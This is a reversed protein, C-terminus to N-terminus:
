PTPVHVGIFAGWGGSTGLRRVYKYYVGSVIAEWTQIAQSFSGSFFVPKYTVEWGAYITPSPTGTQDTYSNVQLTYEYLIPTTQSVFAKAAAEGDMNKLTNGGLNYGITVLSTISGATTDFLGFRPILYGPGNVYDVTVLIVSFQNKAKAYVKIYDANATSILVDVEPVNLYYAKANGSDDRILLLKTQLFVGLANREIINVMAYVAAKDITKKKPIDLVNSYNALTGSDTVARTGSFQVQQDAIM